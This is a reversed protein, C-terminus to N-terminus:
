EASGEKLCTFGMFHPAFPNSESERSLTTHGGGRNTAYHTTEIGYKDLLISRLINVDALTFSETSIIIANDRKHYHAPPLM